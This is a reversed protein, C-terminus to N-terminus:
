VKKFDLGYNTLHAKARIPNNDGFNFLSACALASVNTEQFTARLHEYSGAGGSGIVPLKTAAMAARILDIDYGEMGGDRDISTIMIEGAGAATAREVHEALSYKEEKRGCDSYLAFGGDTRRRADISVIVAQAGFTEAIQTVLAYDRYVASNVVVKDAGSRILAAADAFTRIGGGFALPMFSVKSVEVAIRLLPEISRTDRNINVFVLEDAYQSNYIRASAVPDGVDRWSSFAQTKVLRGNMLSLVPIIRKKLM